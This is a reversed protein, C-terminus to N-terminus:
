VSELKIMTNNIIMMYNIQETYLILVLNISSGMNNLM